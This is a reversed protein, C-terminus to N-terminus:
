LDQEHSGVVIAAISDQLRHEVEELRGRAAHLEARALRADPPLQLYAALRARLPRLREHLAKVQSPPPLTHPPPSSSLHSTPVLL